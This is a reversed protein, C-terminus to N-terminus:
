ETRVSSKGTCGHTTVPNLSMGLPKKSRFGAMSRGDDFFLVLQQAFARAQSSAICSSQTHLFRSRAPVQGLHFNSRLCIFRPQRTPDQAFVIALLKRAAFAFAMLPCDIMLFACDPM